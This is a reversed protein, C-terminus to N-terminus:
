FVMLEWLNTVESPTAPQSLDIDNNYKSLFEQFKLEYYMGLLCFQPWTSLEYQDSHLMGPYVTAIFIALAM